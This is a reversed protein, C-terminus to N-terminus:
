VSCSSIDTKHGKKQYGNRGYRSQPVRRMYITSGALTTISPLAPLHILRFWNSAAFPTDGGKGLGVGADVGLVRRSSDTM